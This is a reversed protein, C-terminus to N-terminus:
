LDAAEAGRRTRIRWVSELPTVTLIGDGPTGTSAAALIADVVAAARASGTVVEIRAHQGMWDNAFFDVYEGYGKVRSVSVGRVDMAQLAREVTSLREIRVFATVRCFATDM